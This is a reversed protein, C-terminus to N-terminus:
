IHLAMQQMLCSKDKVSIVLLFSESWSWPTNSCISQTWYSHRWGLGDIDVRLQCVLDKLESDATCADKGSICYPKKFSEVWSSIHFVLKPHQYNLMDDVSKGFECYGDFQRTSRTGKVSLHFRELYNCQPSDGEFCFLNYRFQSHETLHVYSKKFVYSMPSESDKGPQRWDELSLQTYKRKLAETKCWHMNKIDITAKKLNQCSKNYSLYGPSGRKRHGCQYKVKM